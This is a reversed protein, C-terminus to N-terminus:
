LPIGGVYLKNIIKTVLIHFHNIVKIVRINGIRM